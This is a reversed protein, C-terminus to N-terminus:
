PQIRVSVQADILGVVREPRDLRIRTEIVRQDSMPLPDTGRVANGAVRAGVREVRGTIPEVLADGTVTVAQGPRVRPLDIEPVEAVVYMATTKALELIGAPKIEEGPWTRIKVVLGDVPSTVQSQEWEADALEVRRRASALEAEAVAVDVERVESLSRLRERAQLLHQRRTDRALRRQDLEAASITQAKHLQEYRALDTEAHALELEARAVEATQADVDSAKAGARVQALRREAVTVAARAAARAAALQDRSNLEALLQGAKVAAGEAVHLAAVISPQGSLSRASVRIVDDEPAIRGLCTIDGPGSAADGAELGADAPRSRGTVAMVGLAAVALLAVGAVLLRATRTDLM